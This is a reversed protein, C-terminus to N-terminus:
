WNNDHRLAPKCGAQAEACQRLAPQLGASTHNRDATSPEDTEMPKGEKRLNWEAFEEEANRANKRPLIM